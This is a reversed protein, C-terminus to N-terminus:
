LPQCVSGSRGSYGRAGGANDVPMVPISTRVVVGATAPRRAAPGPAALPGCPCGRTGEPRRRVRAHPDPLLSCTAVSGNAVRGAPAGTVSPPTAAAASTPAPAPVSPAAGAPM